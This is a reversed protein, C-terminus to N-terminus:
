ACHAVLRSIVFIIFGLAYLDTQFRFSAFLEACSICRNTDVEVFYQLRMRRADADEKTNRILSMSYLTM